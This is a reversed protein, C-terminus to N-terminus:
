GKSILELAKSVEKEFKFYNKSLDEIEVAFDEKTVRIIHLPKAKVDPNYSVFDIWELKDHILFYHALQPRNAKPIGTLITEIHKKPSPCKIEIAATDGILGDPSLGAYKYLSNTIYGCEKSDQFTYAEYAAIALPERQIGLEMARTPRVEEAQGTLLEAVKVFILTKMRASTTLGISESGGVRGIRAAFWEPSRQELNHIKM